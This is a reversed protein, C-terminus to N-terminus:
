RSCPIARTFVPTGRAAPSRPAASSRPPAPFFTDPSWYWLAAGSRLRETIFHHSVDPGREVDQKARDGAQQEDRVCIDGIEHERARRHASFLNGQASSEAGAASPDNPLQERLAHKQGSEAPQESQEDRLPSRFGEDRRHRLINRADAGNLQISRNETKGKQKRERGSDNEAKNGGPLCRM